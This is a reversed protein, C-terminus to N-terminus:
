VRFIKDRGSIKIFTIIYLVRRNLAELILSQSKIHRPGYVLRIMVFVQRYLKSRM